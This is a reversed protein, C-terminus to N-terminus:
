RRWKLPILPPMIQTDLKADQKGDSNIDTESTIAIMTIYRLEDVTDIHGSRNGHGAPPLVWDIERASIIGDGEGTDHTDPIGDNGLDITRGLDERISGYYKFSFSSINSALIKSNIGWPAENVSIDRYVSDDIKWIRIRVDIRNDNDDDDDELDYGVRWQQDIPLTFKLQADNDDDPDKINPIGDADTDGNLNYNPNKVIDSRFEISTSSIHVLQNAEYLDQELKAVLGRLNALGKYQLDSMKTGKVIVAFFQTFFLMVISIIMTYMMVEILTVGRACDQIIFGKKPLQQVMNM